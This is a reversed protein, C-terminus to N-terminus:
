RLLEEYLTLYETAAHELSFRRGLARARDVSNGADRSRRDLVGRVQSVRSRTSEGDFTEGACDGSLLDAGYGINTSVVSSGCALAAAVLMPGGDETALSLFIDVSSLARALEATSLLGPLHVRERLREPVDLEGEGIVLLHAGQDYDLVSYAIECGESIRKRQDGLFTAGVALVSGTPGVGLSTRYQDNRIGRHFLPDVPTYIVKTREPACGAAIVHKRFWENGAVVRVNEADLVGRKKARNRSVTGQIIRSGGVPCRECGRQYEGCGNVPYHCGGTLPEFDMPVLVTPKGAGVIKSLRGVGLLRDTSYVQLVDTKEVARDIEMTGLAARGWLFPVEPRAATRLVQDIATNALYGVNQGHFSPALPRFPQRAKAVILEADVVSSIAEHLAATAGSAGGIEGCVQGIELVRLRRIASGIGPPGGMNM